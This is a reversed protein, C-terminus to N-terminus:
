CTWQQQCAPLQFGKGHFEVSHWKSRRLVFEARFLKGKRLNRVRECQFRPHADMRFGVGRQFPQVLGAAHEARLAFCLAEALDCPEEVARVHHGAVRDRQLGILSFERHQKGVAVANSGSGGVVSPMPRLPLVRKGFWAVEEREDCSIKSHQLIREGGSGSAVDGQAEVGFRFVDAAQM